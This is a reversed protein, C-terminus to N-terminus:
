KGYEMKEKVEKDEVILRKAFLLRLHDMMAKENRCKFESKKVPYKEYVQKAIEPRTAELIPITLKQEM